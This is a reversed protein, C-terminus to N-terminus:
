VVTAKRDETQVEIYRADPAYEGFTSFRAETIEATPTSEGYFTKRLGFRELMEVTVETAAKVAIRAYTTWKTVAFTSVKGYGKTLRGVAFGSVSVARAVSSGRLYAIARSTWKSNVTASTNGKVSFIAGFFGEASVRALAAGYVEQYGISSFVAVTVAYVALAGRIYIGPLSNASGIEVANIESTNM